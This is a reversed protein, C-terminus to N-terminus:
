EGYDHGPNTHTKGIHQRVLQEVRPAGVWGYALELLVAGVLVGALALRGRSYPARQRTMAILDM